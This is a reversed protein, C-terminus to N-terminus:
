EESLGWDWVAKQGTGPVSRKMANQGTKWHKMIPSLDRGLSQVTTSASLFQLCHLARMVGNSM